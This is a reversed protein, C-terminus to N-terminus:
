WLQAAVSDVTVLFLSCRNRMSCIICMDLTVRDFAHKYESEVWSKAWLNLWLTDFDEGMQCSTMMTTVQRIKPVNRTRIGYKVTSSELIWTPPLGASWALPQWTVRTVRPIYSIYRELLPWELVGQDYTDCLFAKLRHELTTNWVRSENSTLM